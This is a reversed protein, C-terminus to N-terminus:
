ERVIKASRPAHSTVRPDGEQGAVKCGRAKTALRLSPQSMILLTSFKHTFTLPVLHKMINMTKSVLPYLRNIPKSKRM